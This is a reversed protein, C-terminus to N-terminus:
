TEIEIYLTRSSPVAWFLPHARQQSGMSQQLNKMSFLASISCAHAEIEAGSTHSKRAKMNCATPNCYVVAELPARKPLRVMTHRPSLLSKHSRKTAQGRRRCIQPTLVM